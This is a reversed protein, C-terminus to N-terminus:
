LGQPTCRLHHFAILLCADYPEGPPGKRKLAILNSARRQRWTIYAVAVALLGLAGFGVPFAVTIWSVPNYPVCKLEDKPGLQKRFGKMCVDAVCMPGKLCSTHELKVEM